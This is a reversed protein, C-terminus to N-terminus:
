DIPELDPPQDDDCIKSFDMESPKVELLERKNKKSEFQNEKRESGEKKGRDTDLIRLPPPVYGLKPLHVVLFGVFSILVFGPCEGVEFSGM